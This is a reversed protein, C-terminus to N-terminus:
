REPIFTNIDWYVQKDIIVNKLWNGSIVCLKKKIDKLDKLKSIFTLNNGYNKKISEADGSLKQSNYILGDLECRIGSSNGSIWGAAKFTSMMVVAKRHNTLDEFTTNGISEITREGMVTGNLKFTPHGFRIHHGDKFVLNNPGRLSSIFNNAGMKGTVEYYGYMKYDGDVDELLFSTIPPHHSIHECYFKSGDPFYGQLTEGLM